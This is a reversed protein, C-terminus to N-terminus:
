RPSIQNLRMRRIDRQPPAGFLRCYERSFEHVACGKLPRACIRAATPFSKGFGRSYSLPFLDSRVYRGWRLGGGVSEM